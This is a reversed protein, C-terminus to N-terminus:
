EIVECLLDVDDSLPSRFVRSPRGQTELRVICGNADVSAICDAIWQELSEPSWLDNFRINFKLTGRAPIVNSAPNGVDITTVELNTAPFHGTGADIPEAKLATVIAALMPLPNN